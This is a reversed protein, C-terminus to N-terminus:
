GPRVEAGSVAQEVVDAVTRGALTARIGALVEADLDTLVQQIGAGVPCAPNADHVGLVAADGHLVDWVADLGITGAARGLEWGGGSGPRAHVIGAERLPGLVRRVYVPATNTSAALEDSSVARGPMASLYTLVHVAVAFQTNTSAM